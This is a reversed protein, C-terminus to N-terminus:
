RRFFGAPELQTFKWARGKREVRCKLVARRPRERGIALLWDLEMDRAQDTGEDNVIEVTSAVDESALLAQVDERLQAYGPMRRDFLDVFAAWDKDALAEAAARLLDQVGAPADAKVLAALAIAFLGRRTM